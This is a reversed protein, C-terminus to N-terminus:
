QVLCIMRLIIYQWLLWIVISCCFELSIFAVCDNSSYVKCSNIIFLICEWIYRYQVTNFLNNCKSFEMFFQKICVFSFLYHAGISVCGLQWNAYRCNAFATSIIVILNQRMFANANTPLRFLHATRLQAESKKKQFCWGRFVFAQSLETVKLLPRLSLMCSPFAM